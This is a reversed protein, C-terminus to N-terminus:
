RTTFGLASTVSSNKSRQGVIEQLACERKRLISTIPPIPGYLQQKTPHRCSLNLAARLM